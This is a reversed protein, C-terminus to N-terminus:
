LAKEKPAAPVGASVPALMATATAFAAGGDLPALSGQAFAFGRSSRTVGARFALPRDARALSLFHTSLELTVVVESDFHGLGALVFAADFGASIAGGNLAADGGGGLLGDQMRTVVVEALAPEGYRGEFGFWLIERRRNFAALRARRAEAALRFPLFAARGGLADTATDM